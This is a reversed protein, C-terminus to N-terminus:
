SVSEFFERLPLSNEILCREVAVIRDNFFDLVDDIEDIDEGNAGVAADLADLRSSIEDVDKRLSRVETRLDEIDESKLSSASPLMGSDLLGESRDNLMAVKQKGNKYDEYTILILDLEDLKSFRYNVTGRSMGTNRRIESTTARGKHFHVSRLFRADTYDLQNLIDDM